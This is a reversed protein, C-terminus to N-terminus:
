LTSVNLVFQDSRVVHVVQFVEVEVQGEGSKSWGSADRFRRGQDYVEGGFSRGELCGVELWDVAGKRGFVGDM